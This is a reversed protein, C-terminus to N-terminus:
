LITYFLRSVLQKGCKVNVISTLNEGAIDPCSDGRQVMWFEATDNNSVHSQVHASSADYDAISWARGGRIMCIAARNNCAEAPSGTAKGSVHGCVHIKYTINGDDSVVTWPSFRSSSILHSNCLYLKDCAIVKVYNCLAMSNEIM